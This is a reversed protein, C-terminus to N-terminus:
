CLGNSRSSRSCRTGKKTTASCQSSSPPKPKTVTKEVVTEETTATKPSSTSNSNNSVSNRYQEVIRKLVNLEFKLDEIKAGLDLIRNEYKTSSISLDNSLRQNESQLKKVDEKLDFIEVRVDVKQAITNFSSILLILVIIKKM